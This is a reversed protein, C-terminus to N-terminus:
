CIRPASLIIIADEIYHSWVLAREGGCSERERLGHVGTEREREGGEGRSWRDRGRTERNRGRRKLYKLASEARLGHTREYNARSEPCKVEFRWRGKESGSTRYDREREWIGLVGTWFPTIVTWDYVRKYNKM